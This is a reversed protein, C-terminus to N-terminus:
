SWYSPTSPCTLSTTCRTMIRVVKDDKGRVPVDGMDYGGLEKKSRGSM